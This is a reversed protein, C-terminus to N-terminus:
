PTSQVADLNKRETRTQHQSSIRRWSNWTNRRDLIWGHQPLQCSLFGTNNHGVVMIHATPQANLMVAGIIVVIGSILGILPLGTMFGGTFGFSHMMNGYGEMMHGFGNMMDGFNFGGSLLWMWTM